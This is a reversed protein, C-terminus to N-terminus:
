RPPPATAPDPRGSAIAEARETLGALARELDARREEM